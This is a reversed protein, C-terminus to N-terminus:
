GGFDGFTCFLAWFLFFFAFWTLKMDPDFVHLWFVRTFPFISGFEGVQDGNPNADKQGM